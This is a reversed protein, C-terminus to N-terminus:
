LKCLRQYLSEKAAYQGSSETYEANCLSTFAKHMDTGHDTYQDGKEFNSSALTKFVTKAEGHMAKDYLKRKSSEIISEFLKGFDIISEGEEGEQGKRMVNQVLDAIQQDFKQGSFEDKDLASEYAGKFAKSFTGALEKAKQNEGRFTAKTSKVTNLATTVGQDKSLVEFMGLFSKIDDALSSTSAIKYAATANQMSKQMLSNISKFHQFADFVKKNFEVSAEAEQMLNTKCHSSLPFNATQGNCSPLGVENKMDINEKKTNHQTSFEKQVSNSTIKDSKRHDDSYQQKFEEADKVSSASDSNTENDNDYCQERRSEQLIGGNYSFM